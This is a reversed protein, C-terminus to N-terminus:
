NEVFMQKSLGSRYNTQFKGVTKAFNHMEKPKNVFRRGMMANEFADFDESGYSSQSRDVSHISDQSM